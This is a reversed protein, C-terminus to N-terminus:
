RKGLFQGVIATLIGGGGVGGVLQAILRGWDMGGAATAADAAVNPDVGGIAGSLLKPVVAMGVSKVLNGALGGGVAGAIANVIIAAIGEM